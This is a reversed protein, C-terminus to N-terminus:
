SEGGAMEGSAVAKHLEGGSLQSCEVFTRIFCFLSAKYRWEFIVLYVRKDNLNQAMPIQVQLLSTEALNTELTHYSSACYPLTMNPSKHKMHLPRKKMWNCYYSLLLLLLLYFAYRPKARWQFSTKCNSQSMCTISVFQM